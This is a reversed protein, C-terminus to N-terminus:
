SAQTTKQKLATLVRAVDKRIQKAKNQVAVKGEARAMRMDFLEKKLSVAKQKLEDAGLEKFDSSKM